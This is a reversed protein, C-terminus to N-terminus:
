QAEHRVSLLDYLTTRIILSRPWKEKSVPASQALINM